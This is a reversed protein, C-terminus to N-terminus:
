AVGTAADPDLAAEILVSEVGRLLAEVDSRTIRRTDARVTFVVADAPDGYGAEPEGVNIFLSEDAQYPQQMWSLTTRSLLPRLDQPTVPDTDPLEPDPDRRDNLFCSLDIPEGRELGLAAVLEDRRDPDYYAHKYTNISSQWARKVAQEFSIGAVDIACLGSQSVNSVTQALGPRFRNSVVV